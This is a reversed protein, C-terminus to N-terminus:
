AGTVGTSGSAKKKAPAKKAGAKKKGATKKKTKKGTAKKKVVTKKAAAKKAVKKRGGKGKPEPAAALFAQCQELTLKSADLDKPIRGKKKSEDTVFPGWRGKLVQIGHDDFSLILREADSKKKEEVVELAREPSITYPDDTKLSAFNSGYRIYPGFRGINTSM